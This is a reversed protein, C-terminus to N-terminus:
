NGSIVLGEFLNKWQLAIKEMKFRESNIRAQIGMKKRIEENEILFCINDALERINEPEVLLGDEKDKLIDKPGCPCAFSVTPLGCSMAETIVMGFGEFRSSLVFVSSEHYKSIIDTVADELKCTAEIQLQKVQNEYQTRNGGGYIKLVWDPHKETVIKWSEILMDFGKQYAYRGVAIVQKATCNSVSDPYFTLPNHVVTINNLEPWFGAEEHTLVVFKTLKRINKVFSKSWQKKLFSIILNRGKVANAHYSNRTVHFEGVKKSGDKISNLFNLERRLTSITIDPNNELLYQTFRSKFRQYRFPYLLLKKYKSQTRPIDFKVNLDVHKVNESLPYYPRQGNQESTLITIDFGFNDALYNAKLTIIRELGGPTYLSPLYYVIKM